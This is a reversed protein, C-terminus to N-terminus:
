SGCRMIATMSSALLVIEASRLTVRAPLVFVTWHCLGVPHGVAGGCAKASPIKFVRNVMLISLFNVIFFHKEKAITTNM